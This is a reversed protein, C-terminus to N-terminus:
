IELFVRKKQFKTAWPLPTMKANEVHQFVHKKTYQFTIIEGLGKRRRKKNKNKESFFYFIM